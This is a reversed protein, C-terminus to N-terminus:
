NVAFVDIFKLLEVLIFLEINYYKLVKRTLIQHSEEFLLFYSLGIDNSEEEFLYELSNSIDM